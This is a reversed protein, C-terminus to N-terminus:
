IMTLWVLGIAPEYVVELPFLDDENRHLLVWRTTDTQNAKYTEYDKQLSCM